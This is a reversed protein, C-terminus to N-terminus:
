RSKLMPTLQSDAAARKGFLSEDIASDFKWNTFRIDWKPQSKIGTFTLLLRRPLKDKVSVWLDGSLGDQEIHLRECRTWGVWEKGTVSASTANVFLQGPLDSSLLEAVPPRFGFREDMADAFQEITNAKLAELSHLKLEPQILSLTKGDYALERTEAGAPQLVYCQNPRKVTINLAGKGLKASASLEPDVKHSATLQITKAPALKASVTKALAIAEPSIDAKASIVFATIFVAALSTSRQIFPIIKM